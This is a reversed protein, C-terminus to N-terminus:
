LELEAATFRFEREVEAIYDQVVAYYKASDAQAPHQELLARCRQIWLPLVDRRQSLVCGLLCNVYSVLEFIVKNRRYAMAPVLEESNLILHFRALENNM